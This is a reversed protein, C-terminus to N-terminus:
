DRSAQLGLDDLPTSLFDDSPGPSMGFFFWVLLSQSVARSFRPVSQDAQYMELYFVLIEKHTHTPDMDSDGGEVIEWFSGDESHGM